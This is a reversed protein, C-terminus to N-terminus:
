LYISMLIVIVLNLIPILHDVIYDVVFYKTKEEGFMIQELCYNGILYGMSLVFSILTLLPQDYIFAGVFPHMIFFVGTLRRLNHVLVTADVLEGAEDYMQAVEQVMYTNIEDIARKVHTMYKSYPVFRKRQLISQFNQITLFIFSCLFVAKLIYM